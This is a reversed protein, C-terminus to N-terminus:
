AASKVTTLRCFAKVGIVATEGQYASTTKGSADTGIETGDALFKVSESRGDARTATWSGTKDAEAQTAYTGRHGINVTGRWPMSLETGTADTHHWLNKDSKTFHHWNTSGPELSSVKSPQDQNDAYGFARTKGNPYVVKDIRGQDDFHLNKATDGVFAVGMGTIVHPVGDISTFTTNGNAEVRMSQRRESPNSDSTWTGTADKIWSKNDPKDDTSEVFKQEGGPGVELRLSTGDTRETSIVAGTEDQTVKAGSTKPIEKLFHTSSSNSVEAQGASSDGKVPLDFDLTPIEFKEAANQLVSSDFLTLDGLFKKSSADDVPSPRFDGQAPADLKAERSLDTSRDAKTEDDDEVEAPADSRYFKPSATKISDAM